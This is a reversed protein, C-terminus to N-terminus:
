AHVGERNRERLHRETAGFLDDAAVLAFPVERATGNAVLACGDAIGVITLAAPRPHACGKACGSIHITLLDSLHPAAVEAIRPAIARAAIYASACIPAGACAVVRRRPDDARVIFGLRAAADAFASATKDSLGIVLLARGPAARIGVAGVARATEALQELVLADAHGFALGIGRAYSGDRLSHLGIAMKRENGRLRSDLEPDGSECPRASTLLLKSVSERFPEIGKAALVDRARASLGRRAIIELLGLAAETCDTPVITGLPTASVGDGGLAIRLVSCGEVMEACLRVDASLEDLGFAGGGDIAISVKPAPRVALPTRSLARRLDVGLAAADVIEDPDLGALPNCLVPIGDQAAINLAAVAAAFRPASAQTLGRVQLSGRATVEIVSNGHERAAACLGTFDKLPITGVPLLRALLGDGTPMPASLGPCAGRRWM